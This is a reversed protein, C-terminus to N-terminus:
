CTRAHFLGGRLAAKGSCQYNGRSVHRHPNATLHPLEDHQPLLHVAYGRHHHRWRYQRLCSEQVQGPRQRKRLLHRLVGHHAASNRKRGACCPHAADPEQGLRNGHLLRMRPRHGLCDQVERGEPGQGLRARWERRVSRFPPRHHGFLFRRCSPRPRDIWTSWDGLLPTLALAMVQGNIKASAIQDGTATTIGAVTAGDVEWTTWLPHLNAAACVLIAMSIIGGLAISLVADFRADSIQEPDKWREAASSAHLFLNYPVITTGVLGIATMLGTSNNTPLQPTFMGSVIAGWDPNSALATVLFVVGMFVVIATLVKEILNYHGIFMVVAALLGVVVVIVGMPIGPAVAQIGLIGGTINGTEYAVNGIFIAIIVIAIALGKLVPNPIRDRINEGLGKQSAIGVRAAMEQFIITAVTAFVLAWLMTYGVSAGSVTCTTVTGPGVFGAAVLAGPGVNKLKEIVKSM